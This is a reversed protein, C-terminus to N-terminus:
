EVTSRMGVRPRAAADTRTESGRATVLLDCRGVGYSLLCITEPGPSARLRNIHVERGGVVV